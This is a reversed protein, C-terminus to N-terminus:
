TTEQLTIRWYPVSEFVFQEDDDVDKEVDQYGFGARGRPTALNPRLVCM